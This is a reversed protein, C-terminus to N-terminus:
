WWSRRDCGCPVNVYVYHFLILRVKRDQFMIKAHHPSVTPYYLRVSCGPDRGFSVEDDDIPFSAVVSTPDLRKVLRLTGYEGVESPDMASSLRTANISSIISAATLLPQVTM